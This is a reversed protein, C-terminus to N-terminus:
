RLNQINRTYSLSALKIKESNKTLHERIKKKQKIENWLCLGDYQFCHVFAFVHVLYPIVDRTPNSDRSHFKWNLVTLKNVSYLHMILMLNMLLKRQFNWKALVCWKLIDSCSSIDWRSNHLSSGFISLNLKFYQAFQCFPLFSFVFLPFNFSNLQWFIFSKIELSFLIVKTKAM